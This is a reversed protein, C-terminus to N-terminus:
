CSLAMINSEVTFFNDRRFWSLFLDTLFLNTVTRTFNKMFAFDCFLERLQFRCLVCYLLHKYLNVAIWLDSCYTCSFSDIFYKRSCFSGTTNILFLSCLLQDPQIFWLMCQIQISFDESSSLLYFFDLLRIALTAYVITLGLKRLVYLANCNNLSAKDWSSCLTKACLNNRLGNILCELCLFCCLSLFLDFM